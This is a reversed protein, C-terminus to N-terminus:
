IRNEPLDINFERKVDTIFDQKIMSIFDTIVGEMFESLTKTLKSNTIFDQEIIDLWAKKYEEPCDINSVADKMKKINEPTVTNENTFKSALYPINEDYFAKKYIKRITSQLNEKEPYNEVFANGQEGYKMEQIVDIRYKYNPNKILFDKIYELENKAIDDNQEMAADIQFRNALDYAMVPPKKQLIFNHLKHAGLLYEGLSDSAKIIGNEETFQNYYRELVEVYETKLNELEAEDEPRESIWKKFILNENERKQEPTPVSNDNVPWKPDTM